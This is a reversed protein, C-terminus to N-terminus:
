ECGIFKSFEVDEGWSDDDQTYGMGLMMKHQWDPADHDVYSKLTVENIGAINLGIFSDVMVLFRVICEIFRFLERGISQRQWKKKVGEMRTAFENDPYPRFDALAAAVVKSENTHFLAAFYAPGVDKSKLQIGYASFLCSKIQSTINKQFNLDMDSLRLEPTIHKGALSTTVQELQTIFLELESARRFLTEIFGISEQQEFFSDEPMSMILVVENSEMFVGIALNVMHKPSISQM